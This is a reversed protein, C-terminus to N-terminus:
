STRMTKRLRVEAENIPHGFARERLRNFVPYATNQERMWEQAFVGTKIERVVERILKKTEDPMVKPGYSLTGYQSTSSHLPLQKFLGVRAMEDFVESLEGSAYMELVIAEPTYGEEVLVEFSLQFARMIVPMTFHETFHDLETEEAFSIEMAGARTAGIAKALALVREKARGTADRQVYVFAPAGSGKVFLERVHAGIMRPALLLVDVHSPPKIFGYRINYGHAFVLAKGATLKEKIEMEYVTPQVEDPVLLLIMSALESAERIPYVSFGDQVARKWSEDQVSGVIVSLGSDRMNLAQARGQNGYGVIAVVENRLAKLDADEEHYVNVM